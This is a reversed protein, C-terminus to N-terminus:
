PVSVVAVLQEQRNAPNTGDDYTTVSTTYDAIGRSAPGTANGFYDGLFTASGSATGPHPSNLQPDFAHASLRINNGLPHLTADYFQIATNVCYNAAGYPPLAGSYAPNVQDLALGAAVAEATGSAPCALRRDYFAVSVHGNAAVTLNPQFEDAPTANDNV